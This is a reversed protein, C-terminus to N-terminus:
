RTQARRSRPIGIWRPVKEMYERYEDGWKRMNLKEEQVCTYYNSVIVVINGILSLFTFPFNSSLFIPITIFFLTLAFENPHRLIGYPGSKLLATTDDQSRLGGKEIRIRTSWALLSVAAVFVIFSLYELIIPIEIQPLRIFLSMIEMKIISAIVHIFNLVGWVLFALYTWWPTRYKLEGNRIRRELDRMIDRLSTKIRRPTRNM